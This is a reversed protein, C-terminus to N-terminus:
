LANMTLELINDLDHASVEPAVPPLGLSWFCGGFAVLLPGLHLLVPSLLPAMLLAVGFRGSGLCFHLGLPGSPNWAQSGPASFAGLAGAVMFPVPGWPPRFHFWLRPANVFTCGLGFHLGFHISNFYKQSSGRKVPGSSVRNHQTLFCAHVTHWAIGDAVVDPVDEDFSQGAPGPPAEEM